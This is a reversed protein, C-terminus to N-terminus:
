RYDSLSCWGNEVSHSSRGGASASFEMSRNESPGIEKGEASGLFDWPYLVNEIM